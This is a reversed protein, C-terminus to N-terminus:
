RRQRRRRAEELQARTLQLGIYIKYIEATQGSRLFLRQSLRERVGVRITADEFNIQAVFNEKGLIRENTDAVVVFFPFRGVPELAAPGREAIVTMDLDNDVWGEDNYLCRSGFPGLEVNFMVDTLDRGPGERYITVRSAEEVVIVPACPGTVPKAFIGCAALGLGLVVPTAWRRAYPGLCLGRFARVRM